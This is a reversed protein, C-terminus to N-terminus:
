TDLEGARYAKLYARCHRDAGTLVDIALQVPRSDRDLDHIRAPDSTVPDIIGSDAGAEVALLLFADNLLRRHPLGFSVNSMGGTLHIDPGYRDRLRRFAELCHNGFRGDVSIPFVLPDVYIRDLPIGRSLALEVMRSSNAVREDADSPMGAAGAGTVVVACGLEAAVGLAEQRELSASNLMAAGARDGLAELGARIIELNSSDISLPTDARSSVHDVLWRMTEIQEPLRHSVEDVNVDLYHAGADVQRRVISDIYALAAEADGNGAMATQVAIRVHKVRGELYAQSSKEADPIPLARRAGSPDDFLISERGAADPGIQPADLRLVRTTHVNEGIVVFRGPVSM